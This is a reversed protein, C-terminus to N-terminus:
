TAPDLEISTTSLQKRFIWQLKGLYPNRKPKQPYTTFEFVFAETM